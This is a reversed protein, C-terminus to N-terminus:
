IYLIFPLGQGITSKIYMVFTLCPPSPLVCASPHNNHHAAFTEPTQKKEEVQPYLKATNLNALCFFLFFCQLFCEFSPKLTM